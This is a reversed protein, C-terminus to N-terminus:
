GSWSGSPIARTAPWWPGISSPCKGNPRRWPKACPGTARVRGAPDFRSQGPRAVPDRRLHEAGQDLGACRPRARRRRPHRAARSRARGATPFFGLGARRPGSDPHGLRRSRGPPRGRVPLVARVESTRRFNKTFDTEVELRTCGLAASLTLVATVAWLRRPHREIWLSLRDLGLDLHREGWARRPDADFRGALALGPVVAVLVPLVVLSGVLMMWGFDHVPQVQAAILSGFGAADTACAWFIPVALDSGTRTLWRPDLGTVRLERYHVILHIVSAVAIITVISSLMSSVITLRWQSHAVIGETVVISVLVVALPVLVWRLSRFSIVIVAMLLGLSVRGLRRGDAELLRFGDVVMVPEGVVTGSPDHALAAARLRDVLTSQSVPTQSDLLCVVATTQRDAGITYGSFLELMSRALPNNEDAIQRGLPTGTLSLVAAVGPVRQLEAALRGLRTLGTDTMLEPDIYAVLVVESAGFSRKLLHYPELIPDGPAFMNDITRDFDLQRAPVYCAAAAVLM